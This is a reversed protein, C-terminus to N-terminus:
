SFCAQIKKEKQDEAAAIEIYQCGSYLYTEPLDLKNSYQSVTFSLTIFGVTTTTNTM